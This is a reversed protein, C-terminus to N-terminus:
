GAGPGEGATGTSLLPWTQPHHALVDARWPSASNLVSTASAMWANLAQKTWSIAMTAGRALKRAIGNTLPDEDRAAHTIQRRMPTVVDM